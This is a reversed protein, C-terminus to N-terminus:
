EATVAFSQKVAPAVGYVGNGPQTAEITCTGAKIFTASTGLVTCVSTTLSTFNVTLGSVATASLTLPTGVTQSSITGFAITQTLHHIFITQSVHAAEGYVSNGNQSTQITCFGYDNLNLTTGSVTCTSPTLSAFTVALGSTATAALQLTTAANQNYTIAPFDITQPTHNVWFIQFQFPAVGYTSNGWQQAEIGCSGGAILSATTGSVTCVASNTSIFKVPLGSTATASLTINEGVAFPGTPATFSIAQTALVDLTASAVAGEATQSSTVSNTTDVIRGTTTAHMTVGEQCSAGAALTGDSISFGTSTFHSAGTTCSDASIVDEVLGAPYTNSFAIHSVTSSNPNTVTVVFSTTKTGGVTVTAPTFAASLVPSRLEVEITSSTNMIQSSIDEATITQPGPTNLTASFTGTADTLTVNNQTFTADPDSSTFHVTGAYDIVGNEHADEATVDFNFSTGPTATPPVPVVFRAFTGYTVTFGASTGTIYPWLTDTATVTNGSGALDALFGAESAAGSALQLPNTPFTASDNSTLTVQGNYGTSPNGNPDLAAVGLTAGTGATLPQPVTFGFHTAPLGSPLADALGGTASSGNVTGAYNFVAVAGNDGNIQMQPEFPGNNELDETKGWSTATPDSSNFPNAFLTNVFTAGSGTYSDQPDSDEWQFSFGALWKLVVWYTTGATLTIPSSPSFTYTGQAQDTFSTPSTLTLAQIATGPKGGNDNFIAMSAGSATAGSGPFLVVQISSLPTNAAPMFGVGYAQTNFLGLSLTSNTSPINSLLPAPTGVSTTGASGAAGTGSGSGGQGATASFTSGTTNYLTVSGQNVFIAPGAAAGGGGGGFGGNGGPGFLEHFSGPSGANDSAYASGGSGAATGACLYAGGGGGGGSGGSGGNENNSVAAGAGTVGGGGGSACTGGAGGAFGLGGGGGGGLNTSSGGNGGTGGTVSCNLFYTNSLAVVATSQNVFLGAGFGAGGGGGANGNGGAGGTANANQIQLNNLAVLGTDVFFVRYLSHGDIIIQGVQGGDIALNSTIPPLPGNLLITCPTTPLTTCSFVINNTGGATNAALIEYRLEGAAGPGTGSGGSGANSDTFLTVTFQSANARAATMALSALTISVPVLRVLSFRLSRMAIAFFSSV